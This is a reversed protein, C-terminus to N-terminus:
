SNAAATAAVAENQGESFVSVRGDQIADHFANFDIKVQDAYALSWKAIAKDFVDSDGIYGNVWHALPSQSHARALMQACLASYMRLGEGDMITTDFGGKADRYQRLYYSIGNRSVSGLFPDSVAQLIRQHSVVREGGSMEETLTEPTTFNPKTFATVVSEGAEKAQMVLGEGEPGTLAILHCRTGVSGVGVVRM